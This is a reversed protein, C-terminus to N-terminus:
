FAPKNCAYIKTPDVRAEGMADMITRRLKEHTEENYAQRTDADQDSIPRERVPEKKFRRLQEEFAAEADSILSVTRYRKGVRPNTPM